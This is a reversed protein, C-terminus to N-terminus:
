WYDLEKKSHLLQHYAQLVSFDFIKCDKLAQKLTFCIIFNYCVYNTTIDLKIDERRYWIVKLTFLFSIQGDALIMLLRKTVSIDISFDILNNPLM